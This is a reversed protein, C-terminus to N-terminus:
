INRLMDEIVKEDVEIKQLEQLKAQLAEIQSQTKEIEAKNKEENM